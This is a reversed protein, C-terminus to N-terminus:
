EFDKIWCSVESGEETANFTLLEDCIDLLYQQNEAPAMTFDPDWVIEGAYSSNWMTVNEKDLDLLGWIMFVNISIVSDGSHFDEAM